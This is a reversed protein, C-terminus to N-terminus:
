KLGNYIYFKKEKISLKNWVKGLWDKKTLHKHNLFYQCSGNDDIIAPGDERHLEGHIYYYQLGNRNDILAPGDLRHFNDNEDYYYEGSSSKVYSSYNESLTM